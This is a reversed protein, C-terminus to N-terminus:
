AKVRKNDKIIYHLIEEGDEAIVRHEYLTQATKYEDWDVVHLAYFRCEYIAAQKNTFTNYTKWEGDNVNRKQVYYNM